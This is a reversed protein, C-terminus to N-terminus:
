SSTHIQTAESRGLKLGLTVAMSSRPQQLMRARANRLFGSGGPRTQIIHTGPTPCM